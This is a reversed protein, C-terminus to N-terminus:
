DLMELNLLARVERILNSFATKPVFANAGVDLAKKRSWSNDRASFIIVPTNATYPNARLEKCLEFGDMGPMLVDLIFLNPTLSKVLHLALRADQARMVALGQRKLAIELLTLMDAEDDVVMIVKDIMGIEEGDSV